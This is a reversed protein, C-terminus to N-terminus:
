VSSKRRREIMLAATMASAIALGVAIGMVWRFGDVFAAVIARKLAAEAESSLGPPLVAAALIISRHCPV